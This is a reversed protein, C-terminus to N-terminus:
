DQLGEAFQEALQTLFRLYSERMVPIDSGLPDLIGVRARTGSAISEIIRPKFQPETFLCIVGPQQLQRRIQQLRQAGPALLPNITFYGLQQLGFYSEFYRYADHFVFYGRHRLPALQSHIAQEIQNLQQEFRNLNAVLRSHHQPNAELLTMQIQRAIQRAMVPSLWIHPDYGAPHHTCCPASPAQTMSAGRNSEIHDTETIHDDVRLLPRIAASQSLLLQPVTLAQLPKSLFSELEPGVWVVLKAARLRRLDSPRLNYDHPSATPPLLVEVPMIGDAIAAAIFALPRISTLVTAGAVNSLIGCLVFLAGLLRKMPPSLVFFLWRKYPLTDVIM